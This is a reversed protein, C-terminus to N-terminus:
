AIKDNTKLSTIQATVADTDIEITIYEDVGMDRLVRLTNEDLQYYNGWKGNFHCGFDADRFQLIIKAM